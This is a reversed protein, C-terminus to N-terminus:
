WRYRSRIVAAAICGSALLLLVLPFVFGTDGTDTKSGRNKSNGSSDPSIGPDQTESDAEKGEVTVECFAEATGAKATIVTTGGSLATVSGEQDVCATEPSSSEFLITKDVATEPLASAKLQRCEGPKMTLKSPTLNLAEVGQTTITVKCSARISMDADSRATVTVVGPGLATFIHAEDGSFSETQEMRISDLDGTVSWYIKSSPPNMSGGLEATLAVAQEGLESNLIVDLSGPSVTMSGPYDVLNLDRSALNQEVCALSAFAWCIGLAGQNRVAPLTLTERLDFRKPLNTVPADAQNGTVSNAALAGHRSSQESADAPLVAINQEDKSPPVAGSSVLTQSPITVRYSKSDVDCTYARICPYMARSSLDYPEDGGEYSYAKGSIAPVGSVQDEINSTIYMSPSEATCELRVIIEFTEGAPILLPTDPRETYYGSYKKTGEAVKQAEGKGIRVAIEYYTGASAIHMSVAKLLEPAEQNDLTFVESLTGSSQGPYYLFGAGGKTDNIYQHNYNGPSEDAIYVAPHNVTMSADEYSLYFYGEEGTNEGWSNRIIFAGDEEPLPFSENGSGRFLDKSVTDDWGAVTVIHASGFFSGDTYDEENLYWYTRNDAQYGPADMVYIEAAGYSYVANKLHQIFTERDDNPLHLINQVHCLSSGEDYVLADYNDKYYEQMDEDPYPFAQEAVPGAWSTLYAASELYNGGGNRRVFDNALPSNNDALASAMHIESFDLTKLKEPTGCERRLDLVYNESAQCTGGEPCSVGIYYTGEDAALRIRQTGDSLLSSKLEEKGPLGNDRYLRLGYSTGFPSTLTLNLTASNELTFTYYDKDETLHLTAEYRGPFSVSTASLFDNNEEYRDGVPESVQYRFTAESGYVEEAGHIKVAWARLYTDTDVTLPATYLIGNEMTLNNEDTTYYIRADETGCSLTVSTGQEVKGSPVDSIVIEPMVISDTYIGACRIDPGQAKPTVDGPSILWCAAGGGPLQPVAQAYPTIKNLIVSGATDPEDSNTLSYIGEDDRLFLATNYNLILEQFDPIEQSSEGIYCMDDLAQVLADKTCSGATLGNETWPVTDLITKWLAAGGGPLAETQGTLYRAFLYWQGYPASGAPVYDGDGIFPVSIGETNITDILANAEPINQANAMNASFLANQAFVEELWLDSEGFTRSFLILHALEHSISALADFFSPTSSIHLMDMQNGSAWPVDANAFLDADSFYSDYLDMSSFVIAIKGDGDVDAQLPDGLAECLPSLILNEVFFPFANGMPGRLAEPVDAGTEKWVTCKDGAYIVEATFSGADGSYLDNYIEKTDGIKYAGNTVSSKPLGTETLVGPFDDASHRAHLLSGCARQSADAGAEQVSIPSQGEFGQEMSSLGTDQLLTEDEKSAIAKLNSAMLVEGEYPAERDTHPYTRAAVPMTGPILCLLVALICIIKKQGKKKM